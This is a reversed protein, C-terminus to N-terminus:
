HTPMKLFSHVAKEFVKCIDEARNFREQRPHLHGASVEEAGPLDYGLLVRFVPLRQFHVVPELTFHDHRVILVVLMAACTAPYTLCNARVAGDLDQLCFDIHGVAFLFADDVLMDIVKSHAGKATKTDFGTRRICKCPTLFEFM